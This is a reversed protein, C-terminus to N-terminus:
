TRGTEGSRLAPIPVMAEQRKASIPTRAMSASHRGSEEARWHAHAKRTLGGSGPVHCVRLRSGESAMARVVHSRAKSFGVIFAASNWRRRLVRECPSM